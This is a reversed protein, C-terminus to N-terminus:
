RAPRPHQRPLPTRGSCERCPTTNSSRCGSLGKACAPNCRPSTMRDTSPPSTFEAGSIINRQGAFPMPACDISSSGDRPCIAALDRDVQDGRGFGRRAICAGSRRARMRKDPSSTIRMLGATIASNPSDGRLWAANKHRLARSMAARAPNRARRHAVPRDITLGHCCRRRRQALDRARVRVHTISSIRSPRLYRM